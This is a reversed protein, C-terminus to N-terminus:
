ALALPVATMAVTFCGVMRRGSENLCMETDRDSDVRTLYPWVARAM